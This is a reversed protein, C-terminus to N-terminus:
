SKIKKAATKLAILTSKQPMITVVPITVVKEVISSVIPACVLASAGDREARISQIFVEEINTVSYEKILYKNENDLIYNEDLM